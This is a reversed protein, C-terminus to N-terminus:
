DLPLTPSSPLLPPPPRGCSSAARGPGLDVLCLTDGGEGDRAASVMFSPAKTNRKKLYGSM